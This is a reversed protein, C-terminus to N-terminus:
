GDPYLSKVVELVRVQPDETFQYAQGTSKALNSTRFAILHEKSEFLFVGGLHNSAPDHVYYKQVLGNVKRYQDARQESVKKVEEYSLGSRFMFILLEM